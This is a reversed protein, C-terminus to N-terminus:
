AEVRPAFIGSLNRRAHFALISWLVVVVLAIPLGKPEMLVHFLFINVIVPGLLVIGLTVYRNALLLAGGIVQLIAVILSYHSQMMAGIFQGANGTPMPGMPIFPHIGNLGFLLFVLGLLVRAILAAIKM